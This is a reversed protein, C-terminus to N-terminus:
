VLHMELGKEIHGWNVTNTTEEMHIALDANNMGGTGGMGGEHGIHWIPVTWEVDIDFGFLKAKRQINSDAYGRGMLREEYGKITYWIDRHAIQFDGCNSVLSYNDDDFVRIRPHQGYKSELLELPPMYAGPETRSGLPRLDYLSIDRRGVTYFTDKRTIKELHRRQPSIIDINSSTLFDTGLRRLGINRAMVECVGQADANYYTWERAQEESVRIWYLNNTKLLDKEIEEVITQKSDDTAWDVYIVRDFYACMSNLCYTARELLNGGYNDNRGVITVGYTSM